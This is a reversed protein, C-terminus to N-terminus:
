QASFQASDRIRGMVVFDEPKLENATNRPPLAKALEKKMDSIAMTTEEHMEGLFKYLDRSTVKELIQRAEALEKSTSNLIQEFVNDTLKTYARWTSDIATSIHFSGEQAEIKMPKDNKFPCRRM